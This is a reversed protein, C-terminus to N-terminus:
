DVPLEAPEVHAARGVTTHGNLVTRDGRVAVHGVAHLGAQLADGVVVRRVHGPREAAVDGLDLYVRLGAHPVHELHDRDVVAPDPDVRHDDLTLDHAAEGLRVRHGVHLE